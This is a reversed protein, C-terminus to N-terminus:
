PDARLVHDDFRRARQGRALRVPGLRASEGPETPLGLEHRPQRLGSSYAVGPLGPAVRTGRETDVAQYVDGFGGSGLQQEPQFRGGVVSESEGIQM